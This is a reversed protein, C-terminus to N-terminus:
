GWTARAPHQGVIMGEYVETQPEVFTIGREQANELGHGLAPGVGDGGAGRLPGVPDAGDV